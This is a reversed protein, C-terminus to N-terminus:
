YKELKIMLFLLVKQLKAGLRQRFGWAHPAAHSKHAFLLLM